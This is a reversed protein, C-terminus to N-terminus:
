IEAAFPVTPLTRAAYAATATLVAAGYLKWGVAWSFGGFVGILAYGLGGCIVLEVCSAVITIPNNKINKKLNEFVRKMKESRTIKSVAYVAVPKVFVATKESQIAVKVAKMLTLGSAMVAIVQIAIATFIISLVGSIVDVASLVILWVDKRKRSSAMM